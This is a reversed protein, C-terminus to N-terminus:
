NGLAKAGRGLAPIYEYSPALKLIFRKKLVLLWAMLFFLAIVLV